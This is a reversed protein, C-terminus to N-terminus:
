GSTFLYSIPLSVVIVIWLLMGSGLAKSTTSIGSGLYMLIVFMGSKVFLLCLPYNHVKTRLFSFLFFFHLCDIVPSLRIMIQKCAGCWTSSPVVACRTLRRIVLNPWRSVNYAEKIARVGGVHQPLLFVHKCSKSKFIVFVDYFVLIGGFAFSKKKDKKLSFINNSQVQFNSFVEIGM